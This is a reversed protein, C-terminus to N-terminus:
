EQLHQLPLPPLPFIRKFATTCSFGGFLLFQLSIRTKPPREVGWFLLNDKMVCLHKKMRSLVKKKRSYGCFKTPNVNRKAPPFSPSGAGSKSGEKKSEFGKKEDDSADCHHNRSKNSKKTFAPAKVMKKRPAELVAM